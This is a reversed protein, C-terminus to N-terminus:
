RYQQCRSDSDPLGFNSDGIVVGYREGAITTLSNMYSVWTNYPRNNFLICRDNTYVAEPFGNAYLLTVVEGDVSEIEGIYKNVSEDFYIVGAFGFSTSRWQDVSIIMNLTVDCEISNCKTNLLGGFMSEKITYHTTSYHIKEIKPDLTEGTSDNTDDLPSSESSGEGGKGNCSSLLLLSLLLLTTKMVRNDAMQFIEQM